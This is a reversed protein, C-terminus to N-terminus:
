AAKRRKLLLIAAGVALGAYVMNSPMGLLTPSSALPAVPLPTLGGDNAPLSTNTTGMPYSYAGGDSGSGPIYIPQASGDGSAGPLVLPNGGGGGLLLKLGAIEAASKVSSSLLTSAATKTAAATTSAAGNGAASAAEASAAHATDAAAGYGAQEAEAASKAIQAQQYSSIGANVARAVGGAAAGYAAGQYLTRTTDVTNPHSTATADVLGKTGGAVAGAFVGPVGGTVAGAVAGGLAGAAVVDARQGIKQADKGLVGTDTILTLGGTAVKTAVKVAAQVPNSVVSKVAKSFLSGLTLDDDGLNGRFRGVFTSPRYGNKPDFQSSAFRSPVM